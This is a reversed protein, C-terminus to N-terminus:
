WWAVATRLLLLAAPQWWGVTAPLLLLAAVVVHDDHPTPAASGGGHSQAGALGLSLTSGRIQVVDCPIAEIPHPSSIGVERDAVEGASSAHFATSSASVYASAHM